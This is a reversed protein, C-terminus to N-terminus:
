YIYSIQYARNVFVHSYIFANTIICIYDQYEQNYLVLKKNRYNYYKKELQLMYTTHAYILIVFIISGQDELWLM